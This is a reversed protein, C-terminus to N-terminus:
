YGSYEKDLHNKETHLMFKISMLNLIKLSQDYFDAKMLVDAAIQMTSCSNSAM